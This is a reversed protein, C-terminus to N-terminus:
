RDTQRDLYIYGNFYILNFQNNELFLYISVIKIM